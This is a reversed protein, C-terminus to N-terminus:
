RHWCYPISDKNSKDGTDNVGAIFNHGTDSVGIIFKHGTDCVSPSLNIIPTTSVPWIDYFVLIEM